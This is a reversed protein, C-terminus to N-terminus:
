FFLDKADQQNRQKMLTTKGSAKKPEKKKGGV